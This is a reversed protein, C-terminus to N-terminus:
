GHAGEKKRALLFDPIDPPQEVGNQDREYVRQEVSPEGSSSACGEAQPIAPPHHPAVDAGADETVPLSGSSAAARSAPSSVSRASNSNDTSAEHAHVRTAPLTGSEIAHRYLDLLSQMEAYGEPSKEKAAREKVLAKMAATDWGEAKAEKYIESVDGNLAKIEDKLHEVREIFSKLRGASIRNM